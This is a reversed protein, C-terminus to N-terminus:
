VKLKIKNYNATWGQARVNDKIFDYPKIDITTVVPNKLFPKFKNFNLPIKDWADLKIRLMKSQENLPSKGNFDKTKDNLNQLQEDSTIKMILNQFQDISYFYAELQINMM